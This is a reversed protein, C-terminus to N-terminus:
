NVLVLRKTVDGQGTLLRAFYVGSQLGLAVADIKEVYKGTSFERNDIITTIIKGTVDYLILSVTNSQRLKFSIFTSEMFPNPSNDLTATPTSYNIETGIIQPNVIAGILSSFGEDMRMWVPLVHDDHATLAIYHGYFITSVPTFPTESVKFNEFTEGGDGSVAMYVDTTTNTYNRRDYFVLWVKGTGQDVTLFPFFQHRTLGDDNVKIPSSWTIGNDSSKVVFVDTNSYGNRQDAWTIYINGNSSGGSRDCSIVPFSVALNVGPIGYIWNVHQGTICIDEPLWSIGMDLSCDFMLGEPGWWTVYIEGNPGTTPYSGHMSYNGGQADGKEDSIRVPDVWTQGGDGSWSLYICSSDNPNSSGWTDFYTWSLYIRDNVPDWCAWEKDVDHTGNFAVSVEQSWPGTIDDRRHCVVRQIVDPLHLYYFRGADDCLIVPDAQVGWTSGLTGHEWTYGGDTTTYYNNVMAGVMIENPNAPNMYVAPEGPIGYGLTPGIEINQHQALATVHLLLVGAFLIFRTIM